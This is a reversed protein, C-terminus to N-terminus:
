LLDVIFENCLIIANEGNNAQCFEKQTEIDDLIKEELEQLKKWGYENLAKRYLCILIVM